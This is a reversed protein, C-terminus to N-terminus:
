IKSKIFNELIKSGVTASKEVHFQTAVFNDKAISASFPVIYECTAVTYQCLEVYYSHVFYVDSQSEVGDYIHNNYDYINNWGMHPIPLASEPFKKVEADIIGLCPTNEEESHKCLLQQGLCVGLVPQTLNKLVEDLGQERLFHMASGAAGVGPFIVKDAGIIAAKDDTIIADVNLRNLANYVSTSNGANYKIIAIM